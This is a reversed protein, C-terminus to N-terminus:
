KLFDQVEAVGCDTNSEEKKARRDRRQAEELADMDQLRRITFEGQSRQGGPAANGGGRSKAIQLWQPLLRELQALGIGEIARRVSPNLQQLLEASPFATDKDPMKAYLAAALDLPQWESARRILVKTPDEEEAFDVTFYHPYTALWPAIKTPLGSARMEIPLLQMADRLNLTQYPPFRDYWVNLIQERTYVVPTHQSFTANLRGAATASLSPPQSRAGHASSSSSSAASTATSSGRATVVENDADITATRTSASSPPPPPSRCIWMSVQLMDNSVALSRGHARLFGAFSRFRRKIEQKQARALQEYLPTINVWHPIDSDCVHRKILAAVQPLPSIDLTLEDLALPALHPPRRRIRGDVVQFEEPLKVAISFLGGQCNFYPHFLIDEPIREELADIATFEGPVLNRLRDLVPVHEELRVRMAPPPAPPTILVRRTSNSEINEACVIFEPKVVYSTTQGVDSMMYKDDAVGRQPHILDPHLRVNVRGSDVVLVDFLFPFKKFFNLLRSRGVVEERVDDPLMSAVCHFPVYYTPVYLAFVNAVEQPSLMHISTSHSTGGGHAPTLRASSLPPPPPLFSGARGTALGGPPPPPPLRGRDVGGAHRRAADVASHLCTAVCCRFTTTSIRRCPGLTHTFHAATQLPMLLAMGGCRLRSYRVPSPGSGVLSM